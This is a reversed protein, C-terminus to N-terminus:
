KKVIACLWISDVGPNDVFEFDRHTYQLGGEMWRWLPELRVVKWLRRVPINWYLSRLLRFDRINRKVIAQQVKFLRDSNFRQGYISVSSFIKELMGRFEPLTYEQVHTNNVPSPEYGLSFVPKNPTTILAVGDDKLHSHINNLLDFPETVHEIVECCIITDWNEKGLDLGPECIDGVLYEQSPYTKKAFEITPASIDVGLAKDVGFSETIYECNFGTGCGLDLTSRNKLDQKEAFHKLRAIQEQVMMSPDDDLPGGVMKPHARAVDVRNDFGVSHKASM